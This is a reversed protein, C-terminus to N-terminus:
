AHRACARLSGYNIKGPNAGAVFDSWGGPTFPVVIRIPKGAAPFEQARTATAIALAVPVTLAALLARVFFRSM